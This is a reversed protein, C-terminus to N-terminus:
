AKEANEIVGGGAVYEGDYLVVSQGPAVGRQAASFEVRLNGDPQMSARSEVPAHNQRIRACASFTKEEPCQLFVDRAVLASSFIEKEPSVVIRNRQADIRSVYVPDGAAVGVGRRQGITYYAIGRHRGVVKGSDDVIDGESLPSQRFLPSYDGGSIFDQSEPLDATELGFERALSRVHAKTFDGLPFATRALQEPSLRYIFYSQDKSRDLGKMLCPKGRREGIRAYHGTAFADFDLGAARAKDVLFGFKLLSNCRVCPNPTRGALYEDRFYDLVREKYEARLDIVHYPIGLADAIRQSIEIDEKEGPGFCAHKAGESIGWSEDYIRMTIGVVEHGQRKLIAAAVSSDVGGSLGVAYRKTGIASHM